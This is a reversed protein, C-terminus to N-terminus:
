AEYLVASETGITPWVTAACCAAAFHPRVEAGLTPVDGELAVAARPLEELRNRM